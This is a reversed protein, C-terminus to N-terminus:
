MSMVLEKGRYRHGVIYRYTYIYAHMYNYLTYIYM